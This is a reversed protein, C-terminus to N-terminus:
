DPKCGGQKMRSEIEIIRRYADQVIGSADQNSHRSHRLAANRQGFQFARDENLKKCDVPPVYRDALNPRRLDPGSSRSSRTQSKEKDAQRRADAIQQATPGASIAVEKGQHRCPASQYVTKGDETCKFVSQGHSAWSALLLGIGVAWTRASAM